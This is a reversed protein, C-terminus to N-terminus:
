LLLNHHRAVDPNNQAPRSQLQQLHSHLIGRTLAQGGRGIVRTAPTALELLEEGGVAATVGDKVAVATAWPRAADGTWIRANHIILDM